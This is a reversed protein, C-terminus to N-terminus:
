LGAVLGGEGETGKVQGADGLVKFGLEERGEETTWEVNQVIQRFKMSPPNYDEGVARLWEIVPKTVWRRLSGDKSSEFWGLHGGGETAAIVVLGNGVEHPFHGIIPDDEANLALLPVRISDLCKHSSGYRYYAEASEHPFAPPSGGVNATVLGDFEWLTLRREQSFLKDFVPKLRIDSLEDVAPRNIQGVKKLNSAM